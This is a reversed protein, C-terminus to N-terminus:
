KTTYLRFIIGDNINGFRQSRNESKIGKSGGGGGGGGEAAEEETLMRQITRPQEGRQPGRQPGGPNIAEADAGEADAM